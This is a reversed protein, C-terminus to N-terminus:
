NNSLLDMREAIKEFLNMFSQQIGEHSDCLSIIAENSNQTTNNILYEYSSGNTTFNGEASCNGDYNPTPLDLANFAGAIFVRNIDGGMLEVLSTLYKEPTIGPWTPLPELEHFSANNFGYFYGSHMRYDMTESSMDETDTVYLLVLM